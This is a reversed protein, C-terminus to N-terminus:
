LSVQFGSSDTVSAGPGGEGFYTNAGSFQQQGMHYGSGADPLLQQQQPDFQAVAPTLNGLQVILSDIFSQIRKLFYKRTVELFVGQKRLM